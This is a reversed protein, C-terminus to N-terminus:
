EAFDTFDAILIVGIGVIGCCLFGFFDRLAACIRRRGSPGRGDVGKLREV